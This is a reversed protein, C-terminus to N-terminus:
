ENPMWYRGRIECFCGGPIGLDRLGEPIPTRIGSLIPDLRYLNFIKCMHIYLSRHTQKHTRNSLHRQERSYITNHDFLTQNQTIPNKFKLHKTVEHSIYNSIYTGYRGKKNNPCNKQKLMRTSSRFLRRHLLCVM